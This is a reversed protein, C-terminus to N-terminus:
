STAARPKAPQHCGQCHQQFIPRVDKYYSIAPPDEARVGAPILLAIVAGPLATRFLMPILRPPLAFLGSTALLCTFGTYCGRPRADM